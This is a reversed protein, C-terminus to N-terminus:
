SCCPLTSGDVVAIGSEAVSLPPGCDVEGPQPPEDVVGAGGVPCAAVAVDMMSLRFAIGDCM